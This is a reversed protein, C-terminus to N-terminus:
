FYVLISVHFRCYFSKIALILKSIKMAIPASGFIHQNCTDWYCIYKKLNTLLQTASFKKDLLAQM